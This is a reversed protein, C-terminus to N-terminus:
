NRGEGTKSKTRHAMKIKLYVEENGPRVSRKKMLDAPYKKDALALKDEIIKRTDLKLLVSMQICYILVDALEKKVESLKFEDKLVDEIELSSWQFLELLEAGEIMISKALDSPRLHNWDRAKLFEGVRKELSRMKNFKRAM